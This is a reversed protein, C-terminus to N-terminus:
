SEHHYSRWELPTRGLKAKFFRSFHAVDHFGLENAIEGISFSTFRLLHKAELLRRELVMQVPSRESFTQCVRMLHRESVALDRAYESIRRNRRFGAEILVRLRSVLYEGGREVHPTHENNPATRQLMAILLRLLGSSAARYFADQTAYEKELQAFIPLFIEVEGASLEIVLPHHLGKVPGVLEPGASGLLFDRTLSIVCVDADPTLTIGHVQGMPMVVVAPSIVPINRDVLHLVADGKRWFFYQDRAPHRHPPVNWSHLEKRADINEVHIVDFESEVNAAVGYIDFDAISSKQERPRNRTM